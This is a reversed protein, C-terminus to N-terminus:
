HPKFVSLLNVASVTPIASRPFINSLGGAQACVEGVEFRTAAGQVLFLAMQSFQPNTM